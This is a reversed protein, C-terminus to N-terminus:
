SDAKLGQEVGHRGSDIAEHQFWWLQGGVRHGQDGRITTCRPERPMLHGWDGRATASKGVLDHRFSLNLLVGDM